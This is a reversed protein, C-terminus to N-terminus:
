VLDVVERSWMETLLQSLEDRQLGRLLAHLLLTKTNSGFVAVSEDARVGVFVGSSRSHGKPLESRYHLLLRIFAGDVSGRFGPFARVHRLHDICLTLSHRWM